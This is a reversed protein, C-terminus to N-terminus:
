TSQFLIKTEDFVGNVITVTKADLVGLDIVENDQAFYEDVKISSATPRFYLGHFNDYVLFGSIEDPTQTMEAANNRVQNANNHVEINNLNMTGTARFFVTECSDFDITDLEITSGTTESAAGLNVDGWRFIKGVYMRFTAGDQIDIDAFRQVPQVLQCGNVGYDGDTGSELDGLELGSGDFVVLDHKVEESYQNFLIFKTDDKLWGDNAGGDGIELGARMDVLNDRIQVTRYPGNDNAWTELDAFTEPVLETGQQLQIKTGTFWFDMNLPPNPNSNWDIKLQVESVDDTPDPLSSFTATSTGNTITGSFTGTPATVLYQTTSIVATITATNSNSTLTDGVSWTGPSPAATTVLLQGGGNYNTGSFQYLNWGFDVDADGNETLYYESYNTLNTGFFLRVTLTDANDTFANTTSKGKAYFLWFHLNTANIDFQDLTPIDYTWTAVGATGDLALSNTGQIANTDTAFGTATGAATWNTTAECANLTSYDSTIVM